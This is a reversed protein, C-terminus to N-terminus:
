MNYFGLLVCQTKLLSSMGDGVFAFSKIYKHWHVAIEQVLSWIAPISKNIPTIETRYILFGLSQEIICRIM